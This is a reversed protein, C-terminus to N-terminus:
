ELNSADAGSTPTLTPGITWIIIRVSWCWFLNQRFRGRLGMDYIGVKSEGAAPGAAVCNSKRGLARCYAKDSIFVTLLKNEQSARDIWFLLISLKKVLLITKRKPSAFLKPNLVVIVAVGGNVKYLSKNTKSIGSRLSKYKIDIM